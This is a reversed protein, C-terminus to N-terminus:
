TSSMARIYLHPATACRSVPSLKIVLRTFLRLVKFCIVAAIFIGFVCNIAALFILIKSKASPRYNKLEVIIQKVYCRFNALCNGINSFKLFDLM